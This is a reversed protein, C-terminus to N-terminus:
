QPFEVGEHYEYGEFDVAPAFFCALKLPARSDNQVMHVQGPAFLVASGEGIREVESSVYVRGAGWIVYIVGEGGPHAHAPRVTQGPQIVVTNMSCRKATQDDPHFLWRLERGSVDLATTERERVLNV